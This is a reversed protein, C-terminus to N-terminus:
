QIVINNILDKKNEEFTKKKTKQIEIQSTKINEAFILKFTKMVSRTFISKLNIIM